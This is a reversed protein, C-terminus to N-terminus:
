VYLRQGQSKTVCRAVECGGFDEEGRRAGEGLARFERGGFDQVKQGRDRVCHARKRRSDVLADRLNDLLLFPFPEARDKRGSVFPHVQKEAAANSHAAQRLERPLRVDCRVREVSGHALRSPQM